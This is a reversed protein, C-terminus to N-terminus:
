SGLVGPNSPPASNGDARKLPTVPKSAPKADSQVSKPAAIDVLEKLRPLIDTEMQRLKMRLENLGTDALSRFHRENQVEREASAARDRLEGLERRVANAENADMWGEAKLHAFITGLTDAM